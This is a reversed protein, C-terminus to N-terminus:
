QVLPQTLVVLLNIVAFCLVVGVCHLMEGLSASKRKKERIDATQSMLKDLDEKLSKNETTLRVNKENMRLITDNLAKIKSPTEKVDKGGSCTINPIGLVSSSM